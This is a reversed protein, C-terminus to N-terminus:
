SFLMTYGIVHPPGFRHLNFSRCEEWGCSVHPVISRPTNDDVWCPGECVETRTAHRCRVFRKHIHGCSM